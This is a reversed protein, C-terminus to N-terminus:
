GGMLEDLLISHCAALQKVRVVLKLRVMLRLARCEIAAVVLQICLSLFEGLRGYGTMARAIIVAANATAAKSGRTTVTYARLRSGSCDSDSSSNASARSSPAALLRFEGPEM